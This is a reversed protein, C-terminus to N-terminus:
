RTTEEFRSGRVEFGLAALLHLDGVVMRPRVDEIVRGAFEPSGAADLPVALVGRLLCGFFVGIWEASDAGWIVVREGPGVGRRELEAAFQGALAALEGYTTVYRRVGRHTVVATEAAHLRFDEVLTALNERMRMMMALHARM